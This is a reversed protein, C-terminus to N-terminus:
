NIKQAIQHRYKKRKNVVKMKTAVTKGTTKKVKKIRVTVNELPYHLKPCRSSGGNFV